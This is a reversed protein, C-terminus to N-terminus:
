VQTDPDIRATFSLLPLRAERGSRPDRFVIHGRARDEDDYFSIASANLRDVLSHGAQMAEAAAGAIVVSLGFPVHVGVPGPDKREAMFREAESRLARLAESFRIEGYKKRFVDMARTDWRLMVIQSEGGENRRREQEDHVNARPGAEGGRRGKLLRTITEQLESTRFPKTIYEDAGCDRGWFVDEEQVRATLLIVPTDRTEPDSKVRRCIQFGNVKPMMVDVILLDPHEAVIRELAREGDEALIVRYGFTELSMKLIDRMNQSDDAVLIRESIM